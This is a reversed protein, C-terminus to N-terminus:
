KQQCFIKYLEVNNMAPMFERYDFELFDDSAKLFDNSVNENILLKEVFSELIRLEREFIEDSFYSLIPKTKKKLYCFSYCEIGLSSIFDQMGFINEVIDDIFVMRRPVTEIKKFLEHQTIHKPTAGSFIIGQKFLPKIKVIHKENLTEFDWAELHLFTYSFDIGLRHLKRLRAVAADFNSAPGCVPPMATNGICKIGREQLERILIPVREDMLSIVDPAQFLSMYLFYLEKLHEELLDFKEFLPTKKQVHTLYFPDLRQTILVDDIDFVVIDEPGFNELAHSLILKIDDSEYTGPTLNQYSLSNLQKCERNQTQSSEESFSSDIKADMAIGAHIGLFLFFITIISKIM